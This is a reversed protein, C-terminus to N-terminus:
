KQLMKQLEVPNNTTIFDIGKDICWQMDTASNVTWVNVKMGLAHLEDIWEPHERYVNIHYDAGTAGLDKLEQPTLEGNLYYVLTGTPAMSIIKKMAHLSFTIYEIRNELGKERVMKIINEVAETEHAESKHPKLELILRTNLEKGNDLYASLTPLSEGNSLNKALLKDSNSYEMPLGNYDNDHNVMLKKDATLWVDFESGYCHISDANELAKISNQPTGDINWFGRHAIVKSSQACLQISISLICILSILKKM